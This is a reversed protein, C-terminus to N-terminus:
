SRCTAERLERSVETIHAKAHPRTGCALIDSDTAAHTAGYRGNSAKV